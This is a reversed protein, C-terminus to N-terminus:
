YRSQNYFSNKFSEGFKKWGSKAEDLIGQPTAGERALVRFYIPDSKTLGLDLLNHEIEKMQVDLRHGHFLKQASKAKYYQQLVAPIKTADAVQNAIEQALTKEQINRINERAFDTSAKVLATDQNTKGIQATRLIADQTLVENQASLNNTQAEVQRLDAFKTLDQTASVNNYPSAKSPAIQGAQGTASTPSGGYILHPNLGARKLRKMQNKPHNYNNQMRWFNLNDTNAQEQRKKAQRNGIIGSILGGGAAVAAQAWQGGQNNGTSNSSPQGM